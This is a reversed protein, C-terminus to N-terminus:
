EIKIFNYLDDGFDGVANIFDSKNTIGLYQMLSNQAGGIQDFIEYNNNSFLIKFNQKILTNNTTKHANFIYEFSNINDANALYAKFQNKFRSSYAINGITEEKYSKLELKKIQGAIEQIEIDFLCDECIGILDDADVIKGEM